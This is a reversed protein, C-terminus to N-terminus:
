NKQHIVETEIVIKTTLNGVTVINKTITVQVVDKQVVDQITHIHDQEQGLEPDQEREHDLEHDTVEQDRDRELDREQGQDSGVEIVLVLIEQELIQTHSMTM